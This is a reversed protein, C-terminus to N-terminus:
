GAMTVFAMCLMRFYAEAAAEEASLPLTREAGAPQEGGAADVCEEADELSPLSAPTEAAIPGPTSRSRSRGLSLFWTM